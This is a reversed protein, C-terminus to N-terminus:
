AAAGTVGAGKLADAVTASPDYGDWVGLLLIQRVLEVYEARGNISSLANLAAAEIHEYREADITM